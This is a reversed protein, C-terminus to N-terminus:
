FVVNIWLYNDTSNLDGCHTSCWVKVQFYHIIIIIILCTILKAVFDYLLSNFVHLKSVYAFLLMNYTM